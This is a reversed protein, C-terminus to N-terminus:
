YLFAISVVTSNKALYWNRILRLQVSKSFDGSYRWIRVYIEVQGQTQKSVDTKGTCGRLPIFHFDHVDADANRFM